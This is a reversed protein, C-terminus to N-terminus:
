LKQRAFVHEEVRVVRVRILTAPGIADIAREGRARREGDFLIEDPPRGSRRRGRMRDDGMALREGTMLGRQPVEEFPDARHCRARKLGVRPILPWNDRQVQVELVAM